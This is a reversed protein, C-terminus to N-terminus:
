RGSGIDFLLGAVAGLDNSLLDRHEANLKLVRARMALYEEWSGLEVRERSRTAARVIATKFPQVLTRHLFNLLNAAALGLGKIRREQLGRIAVIM